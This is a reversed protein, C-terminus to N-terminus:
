MSVGSDIQSDNKNCARFYLRLGIYIIAASILVAMFIVGRNYFVYKLETFMPFTGSIIALTSLGFAFGEMGPLLNSITVLTVPMTLNFLFVGLFAIYPYNFGLFILPASLLLGFVTIKMWGFRDALLGGLGKGLVVALTLGTLLLMDTKWPFNFASGTLARLAIAAMMLFIIAELYKVNGTHVAETSGFIRRAGSRGMYLIISASLFLLIAFPWAIFLGNNGLLTGIFLGLAGPAVFIGPLSASGPKIKLSVIGGGVHFLANGTGALCAAFLPICSSFLAALTILCGAAAFLYPKKLKDALLGIPVQLAFAIVNYLVLLFTFWGTELNGAKYMGLLLAACAGDVLAHTGCFLSM